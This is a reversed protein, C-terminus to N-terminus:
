TKLCIFGDICDGANRATGVWVDVAFALPNMFVGITIGFRFFLNASLFSHAQRCAQLLQIVWGRRNGRRTYIIVSKVLFVFAGVTKGPCRMKVPLNVCGLDRCPLLFLKLFLM